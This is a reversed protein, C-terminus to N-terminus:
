NTIQKLKNQVIKVIDLPKSLKKEVSPHMLINYAVFVLVWAAILDIFYHQRLYITSAFLAIVIPLTIAFLKKSNRYVFISFITLLGTHMSPFTSKPYEPLNVVLNNNDGLSTKYENGYYVNPGVAPVFFYILFATLTVVSVLCLYKSFETNEGKWILYVAFLPPFLVYVFTYIYSFILTLIPNVLGMKDIIISPTEGFIKSDWARLVPDM